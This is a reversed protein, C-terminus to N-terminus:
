SCQQDEQQCRRHEGQETLAGPLQRSEKIPDQRIEVQFTIFASIASQSCGGGSGAAVVAAGVLSRSDAWPRGM